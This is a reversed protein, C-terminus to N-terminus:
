ITFDFSKIRNLADTANVKAAHGATSATSGYLDTDTEEGGTGFV